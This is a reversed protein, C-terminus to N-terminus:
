VTEIIKAVNEMVTAPNSNENWVSGLFAAGVFPYRKLLPLRECDIGGLAVVKGAPLSGLAEDTFEARYGPKSISPFIPSLLVYDADALTEAVSHCSRSVLGHGCEPPLPNRSNLNVGVQPFEGCLCFHDHLTLRGRLDLPVSAIINRMGEASLSPHRLHVRDIGRRLMRAILAGEEKHVGEPTIVILRM